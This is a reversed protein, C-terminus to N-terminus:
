TATNEGDDQYFTVLSPKLVVTQGDRIFDLGGARSVAQSVLDAVDASTRDAAKGKPSQVLAVEYGAGGNANGCGLAAMAALNVVVTLLVLPARLRLTHTM